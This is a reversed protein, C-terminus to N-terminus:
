RSAKLQNLDADIRRLAETAEGMVEVMRTGIADSRQTMQEVDRVLSRMADIFQDDRQAMSSATAQIHRLFMVVIAVLVVMPPAQSLLSLMDAAPVTAIM